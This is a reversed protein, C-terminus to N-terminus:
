RPILEAGDHLAALAEDMTALTGSHKKALVALYADAVQRHGIVGRTPMELYSADADLLYVRNKM